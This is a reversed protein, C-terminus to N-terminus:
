PFWILNPREVLDVLCPQRQEGPARAPLFTNLFRAGLRAATRLDRNETGSADVDFAALMAGGCAGAIASRIAYIVLRTLPALDGMPKLFSVPFPYFILM